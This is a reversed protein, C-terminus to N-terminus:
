RTLKFIIKMLEDYVEAARGARIGQSACTELYNRAMLRAVGRLAEQSASIQTMIEICSRNENLRREIGDLQGRVRKLRTRIELKREDPVFAKNVVKLAATQGRTTM